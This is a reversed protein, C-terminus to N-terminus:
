IKITIDVGAPLNLKKLEDVTKATPEIIDILRKHTRVEFQERSKKDVHPSRNVTYRNIVTPLPIPGAVQAGARKATEVIETTSQDLLRHDYAKLRIRIRKTLVIVRTEEQRKKRM